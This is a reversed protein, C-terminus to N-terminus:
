ESSIRDKLTREVGVMTVFSPSRGAASSRAAASSTRCCGESIPYVRPNPKATDKLDGDESSLRLYMAVRM